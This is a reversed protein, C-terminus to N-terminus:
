MPLNCIRLGVVGNNHMAAIKTEFWLSTKSPFMKDGFYDIKWLLCIIAVYQIKRDRSVYFDTQKRYSFWEDTM